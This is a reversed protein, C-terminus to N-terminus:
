SCKSALFAPVKASKWCYHEVNVFSTIGYSLSYVDGMIGGRIGM